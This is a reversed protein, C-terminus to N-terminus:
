DKMTITTAFEHFLYVFFLHSSLVSYDRVSTNFLACETLYICCSFALVIYFAISLTLFAGSIGDIARTSLTKM